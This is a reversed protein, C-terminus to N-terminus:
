HALNRLLGTGNDHFNFNLGDDKGDALTSTTSPKDVLGYETGDAIYHAKQALNRLKGM